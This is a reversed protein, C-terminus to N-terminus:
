IATTAPLSPYSVALPPRENAAGRQGVHQLICRPQPLIWWGALREFCWCRRGRLWVLMRANPSGGSFDGPQMSVTQM